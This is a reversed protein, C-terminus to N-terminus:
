SSPIESGEALSLSQRGRKAETTIRTAELEATLGAIEAKLAVYEAQKRKLFRAIIRAKADIGQPTLLYVYAFKNHSNIFNNAKIWGQEVLAKICYNAKGLSIGLALALQRQSADPQAQLLKLLRYHIDDSL